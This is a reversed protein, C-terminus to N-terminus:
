AASVDFQRLDLHFLAVIIVLTWFSELRMVPAYLHAESYDIGAIQTFGRAVLRAKHKALTCNELKRHFVWRPTIVNEDIPRAVTKFVHINRLNEIETGM